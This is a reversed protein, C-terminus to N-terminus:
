LLPGSGDWRKMYEAVALGLDTFYYAYELINGDKYRAQSRVIGLDLLRLVSSRVEEIFPKLLASTQTKLLEMYVGPVNFHEGGYLNKGNYIPALNKIVFFGIDDVARHVGALIREKYKEQHDLCYILFDKIEEIDTYEQIKLHNIDFPLDSLYRESKERIVLIDEKSRFTLAVGLEYVVNPNVENPDKYKPDDSLDFLLIKSHAIGNFIEESLDGVAWEEKTRIVDKFIYKDGLSNMSIDKIQKFKNDFKREPDVEENPFPMCVFLKNEQKGQFFNEFFHKPLM